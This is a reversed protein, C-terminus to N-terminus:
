GDQDRLRRGGPGTWTGRTRRAWTRAAAAPRAAAALALLRSRGPQSRDRAVELALQRVAVDQEVLAAKVRERALVRRHEAVTGALVAREEVTLDAEAQVRTLFGLACAVMGLRDSSANAGHMRYLALPEPVVTLRSGSLALRIWLEWDTAYRISEDFGGAGTFASRRVAAHGFVPNYSLVARRLDAGPLPNTPGYWRGLTTGAQVVHADTTLIDVQPDDRLAADLAALRGPLFEDDADLLVVFPATCAAVATNKAAAEGRNVAHTVVRVASGFGALVRASDDSSADDCVVVELPPPDQSLASTLAGAVLEQANYCAIAVSFVTSRGSGDRGPPAM